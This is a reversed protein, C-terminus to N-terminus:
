SVGVKKHLVANIAARLSDADFPKELFADAPAYESGLEKAYDMGTRRGIASVMIVPLHKLRPDERIQYCLHFGESPTALMIDLLVLDFESKQLAAWGAPGTSCCFLDFETQPLMARVAHQMDLDDEILLIRQRNM